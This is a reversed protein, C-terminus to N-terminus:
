WPLREEKPDRRKVPYATIVEGMWTGQPSVPRYQVVVKTWPPKFSSPGYHNERHRYELDRTVVDPNEIATRIEDLRRTMDDHRHRIHKLGASTLVVERGARDRTRWIEAV